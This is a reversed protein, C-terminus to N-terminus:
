QTCTRYLRATYVQLATLQDIAADGDNAIGVLAASTAPALEARPAEDAGPASAVAEPPRAACGGPAVLLRLRSEGAAYRAADAQAASTQSAERAAFASLIAGIDTEHDREKQRLAANVANLEKLHTERLAAAAKEAKANARTSGYFSGVGFALCVLAAVIMAAAVYVQWKPIPNM